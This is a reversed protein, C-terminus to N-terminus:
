FDELPNPFDTPHKPKYHQQTDEENLFVKSIEVPIHFILPLLDNQVNKILETAKPFDATIFEPLQSEIIKNVQVRKNFNSM